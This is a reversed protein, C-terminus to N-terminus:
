WAYGLSIGIRTPEVLEKAVITALGVKWMFGGNLPQRRYMLSITSVFQSLTKDDIYSGIEKTLYTGGTGLEIYKGNKGFLYNIVVPITFVSEFGLVEDLTRGYGLGIRAGFGKIEESFRLDYNVSVLVANGGLEIHFANKSDNQCRCLQHIFFMFLLLKTRQMPKM